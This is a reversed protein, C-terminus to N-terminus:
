GGPQGIPYPSTADVRPGAALKVFGMHALEFAQEAQRFRTRWGPWPLSGDAPQM